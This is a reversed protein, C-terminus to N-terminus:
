VKVELSKGYMCSDLGPGACDLEGVYIPHCTGRLYNDSERFRDALVFDPGINQSGWYNFSTCADNVPGAYGIVGQGSAHKQEPKPELRKVMAKGSAM